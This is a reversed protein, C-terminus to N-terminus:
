EASDEEFPLHKAKTKSKRKAKPASKFTLDHAFRPYDIRQGALLQEITLLQLRPFRAEHAGPTEYFGASAAETRMPQTPTQLSILIGIAAKERDLVGRLDRVHAVQTHGAKVSLIIQKTADRHAAEDHFYIRGDIGRDAVKQKM